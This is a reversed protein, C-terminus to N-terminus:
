EGLSPKNRLSFGQAHKEEDEVMPPDSIVTRKHVPEETLPSEFTKIELPVLKTIPRVYFAGSSTRIKCRRVKKDKDNTFVEVVVALEWQGRPTNPDLQLVIEGVEVNDRERQWTSRQNLLPIYSELFQKWYQDVLYQVQQWRVVPNDLDKTSVAGSLNGHLFHNPTLILNLGEEKYRTLPRGNLISACRSIATRFEDMTLDGQHFIAKLARKSAKVMTEYIGGHHPGYPPTFQWSAKACIKKIILDESLSRVWNQVEKDPSIFTSWNDSLFVQPMGRLDIFRSFANM